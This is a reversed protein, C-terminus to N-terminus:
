ARLEDGHCDHRAAKTWWKTPPSLKQLNTGSRSAKGKLFGSPQREQKQGPYKKTNLIAEQVQSGCIFVPNLSSMPEQFIMAIANGRVSKLEKRSAKLLDM